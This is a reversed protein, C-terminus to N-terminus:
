SNIAQMLWLVVEGQVKKNEDEPKGKSLSRPQRPDIAEPEESAIDQIDDAKQKADKSRSRGKPVGEETELFLSICLNLSNM